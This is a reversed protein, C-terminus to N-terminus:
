NPTSLTKTSQAHNQSQLYNSVNLNTTIAGASTQQYQIKGERILKSWYQRTKGYEKSIDSPSMFKLQGNSIMISVMEKLVDALATEMGSTPTNPEKFYLSLRLRGNTGMTGKFSFQEM